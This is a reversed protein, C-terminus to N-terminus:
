DHSTEANVPHVLDESVLQFVSEFIGLTMLNDITDEITDPLLNEVVVHPTELAVFRVPPMNDMSQAVDRSLEMQRQLYPITVFSTTWTLGDETQVLVDTIDRYPDFGEINRHEIWVHKIM